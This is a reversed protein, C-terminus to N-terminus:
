MRLTESAIKYFVDSAEEDLAEIVRATLAGISIEKLM